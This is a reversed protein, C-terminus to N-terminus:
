TAAPLAVTFYLPNIICRHNFSFFIKVATDKNFPFVGVSMAHYDILRNSATMISLGM